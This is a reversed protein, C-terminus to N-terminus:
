IDENTNLKVDKFQRQIVYSRFYKNYIKGGYYLLVIGPVIIFPYYILRIKYVGLLIVISLLWQAKSFLQQGSNFNDYIISVRKKSEKKSKM